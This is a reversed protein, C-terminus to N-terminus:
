SADSGDRSRLNRYITRRTLGYLVVRSLLAPDTRQVEEAHEAIGDPLEVELKVMRTDWM